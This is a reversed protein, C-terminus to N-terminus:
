LLSLEINVTQTDINNKINYIITINLINDSKQSIVTVDILEVDPETNNIAKEINQKLTQATLPDILEFLSKRTNTGFEVNFGREYFNTLVINRVSQKIANSGSKSALDGTLPHRSFNLDIDKRM